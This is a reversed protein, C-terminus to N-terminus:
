GKVERWVKWGRGFTENKKTWREGDSVGVVCISYCEVDNLLM